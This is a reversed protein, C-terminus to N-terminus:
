LDEVVTLDLNGLRHPDAWVQLHRVGPLTSEASHYQRLTPRKQLRRLALDM